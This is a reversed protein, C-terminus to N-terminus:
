VLVLLNLFFGFYMKIFFVVDFFNSVFFNSVSSFAGPCQQDSAEWGHDCVAAAGIRDFM